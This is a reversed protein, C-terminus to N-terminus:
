LEIGQGINAFWKFTRGIRTGESEKENNRIRRGISWKIKRYVELDSFQNWRLGSEIKWGPCIKLEDIAVKIGKHIIKIWGCFFITSINVRDIM